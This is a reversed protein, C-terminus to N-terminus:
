RASQWDTLGAVTAADLRRVVSATLRVTNLYDELHLISNHSHIYRAPPALVICPVGTQHFQYSRADTGGSRRVALQHPIGETRATELVLDVLRRNMLATPDLVRIQVGSGLAGQSEEAPMGPTDDAPTGEMVLAVDPRTLAALTVAGRCGVEEQVSGAAILRCPLAENKLLQMTQVAAAVGCRNDFAKAVFREGGALATFASDPAVADGLAIGLAEAEARCGAGVDVYLQELPLVKDKASEGLFHPPTSGIIGLVEQGCKTLIRVRQAVLTHTWWGGLAVLKIFGKATIHQVAFGVEDFHGAVLVRPGDGAREVAASGLRDTTVEGCGALERLFIRRVVDERGPVGHAETLERLLRIADTKLDPQSM